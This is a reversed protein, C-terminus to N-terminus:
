GAHAHTEDHSHTRAYSAAECVPLLIMTGLTMGFGLQLTTIIASFIRTTGSIMNGTALETISITISLGLLHIFVSFWTLPTSKMPPPTSCQAPRSSTGPLLWIIGSLVTPMYCIPQVYEIFLRTFFACLIAAM